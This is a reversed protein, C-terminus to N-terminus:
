VEVISCLKTTRCLKGCIFACCRCNLKAILNEKIIRDTKDPYDAKIKAILVERREKDPYMKNMILSIMNDKLKSINALVYGRIKKNIEESFDDYKEVDTIQLIHNHCAEYIDPYQSKIIKKFEMHITLSIYVTQRCKDEKLLNCIDLYENDTIKEKFSDIKDLINGHLDYKAPPYDRLDLHYSM